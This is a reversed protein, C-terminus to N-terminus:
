SVDLGDKQNSALNIKKHLDAKLLEFKYIIEKLPKITIFSELPQDVFFDIVNKTDMLIIFYYNIKPVGILMRQIIQRIEVLENITILRENGFNQKLNRYLVFGSFTIQNESKLRVRYEGRLQKFLAQQNDTSIVSDISQHPDIARMKEFFPDKDKIKQEITKQPREASKCSNLKSLYKESQNVRMKIKM